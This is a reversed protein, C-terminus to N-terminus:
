ELVDMLLKFEREANAKMAALVKPEAGMKKSNKDFWKIYRKRWDSAEKKSVDQRVEEISSAIVRLCAVEAIVPRELLGDGAEASDLDTTITNKMELIFTSFYDLAADSEFTGTGWIGM